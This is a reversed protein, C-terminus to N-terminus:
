DERGSYVEAQLGSSRNMWGFRASWARRKQDVPNASLRCPLIHLIRFYVDMTGKFPRDVKEIFRRIEGDINEFETLNM